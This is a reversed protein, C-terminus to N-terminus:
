HGAVAYNTATVVASVHVRDGVRIMGLVAPPKLGYQKLSVDFSGEFRITNETTAWHQITFPLEHRQGVIELQLIGRGPQNPLPAQKVEGALIPYTNTNLMAWM